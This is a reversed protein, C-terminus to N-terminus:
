HRWDSYTTTMHTSTPPLLVVVLLYAAISLHDDFTRLVAPKLNEDLNRRAKDYKVRRFLCWVSKEIDTSATLGQFPM